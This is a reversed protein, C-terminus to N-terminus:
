HRLNAISEAAIARAETNSAVYDDYSPQAVFALRDLTRCITDYIDFYGIRRDLFAAVAIENAANIACATNGGREMAYRALALCPFKETDPKEFTLTSMQELTLGPLAYDHRATEGLAYAIPLRMDPVGLQAKIAGDAFEVMSHVISQPHVVAEIKGPDMGFLWRAEIIEFAKNLMTASDITIKAGMSWNPHKLADAATARAMDERKWTRFPGGSATIILRKVSEPEEGRLCQYIASHESDVPYIRSPSQRLLSCVLEGAVVLTEKNALAIDKGAKIASITPALGSYGVTATLVTDVDDSAAEQALAEAGARCEIGLPGVAARLAPLLSDDAIVAVRPRLRAAAEALADVNRGAALVKARYRGGSRAIIDLAQRGISGTAGLVAINKPNDVSILFNRITTAVLACLYLFDASDGLILTGFRQRCKMEMISSFLPICFFLVFIQKIKYFKNVKCM